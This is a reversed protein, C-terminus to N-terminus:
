FRVSPPMLRSKHNGKREATVIEEGARGAGKEPRGLPRQQDGIQVQLFGAPEGAEALEQRGIVALCREGGQGGFDGGGAGGAEITEAIREMISITAVPKRGSGAM